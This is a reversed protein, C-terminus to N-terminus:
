VHARGGLCIDGTILKQYHIHAQTNEDLIEKCIREMAILGRSHKRRFYPLTAIEKKRTKFYEVVEIFQEAYILKGGVYKIESNDLDGMKFLRLLKLSTINRIYSPNKDQGRKNKWGSISNYMLNDVWGALKLPYEPLIHILKNTDNDVVACLVESFTEDTENVGATNVGLLIIRKDDVKCNITQIIIEFDRGDLLKFSVAGNLYFYKVSDLFITLIYVMLHHKYLAINDSTSKRKAKQCFLKYAFQIQRIQGTKLKPTKTDSTKCVELNFLPNIQLVTNLANRM